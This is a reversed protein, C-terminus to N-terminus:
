DVLLRQHPYSGVGMIRYLCLVDDYYRFRIRPPAPFIFLIDFLEQRKKALIKRLITTLDQALNTMWKRPNLHAQCSEQKDQGHNEHKKGMTGPNRPWSEQIEYGNNRQEKAMIRTNRVWPEQTGQGLNKYKTGM